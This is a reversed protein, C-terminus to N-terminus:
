PLSVAIEGGRGGDGSGGPFDLLLILSEHSGPPLDEKREGPPEETRPHHGLSKGLYRKLM